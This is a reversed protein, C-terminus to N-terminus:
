LELMFSKAKERDAIFRQHNKSKIHRCLKESRVTRDSLHTKLNISVLNLKPGILFLAWLKFVPRNHMVKFIIQCEECFLAGLCFRMKVKETLFFIPCPRLKPCTTRTMEPRQVWVDWSFGGWCYEEYYFQTSSTSLMQAINFGSWM